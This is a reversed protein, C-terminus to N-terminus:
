VVGKQFKYHLYRITSGRSSHHTLAGHACYIVCGKYHQYVGLHVLYEDLLLSVPLMGAEQQVPLTHTCLQPNCTNLYLHLIM